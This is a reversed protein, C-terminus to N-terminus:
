LGRRAFWGLAVHIVPARSARRCSDNHAHKKKLEEFLSVAFSGLCAVRRRGMDKPTRYWGDDGSVNEAATAVAAALIAEDTARLHTIQAARRVGRIRSL